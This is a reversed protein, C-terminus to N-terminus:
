ADNAGQSWEIWRGLCRWRRGGGGGGGGGGQLPKPQDAVIHSLRSPRNTSAERMIVGHGSILDHPDAVMAAINAANAGTPQWVDTRLYPDYALRLRGARTLSAVTCFHCCNRCATM